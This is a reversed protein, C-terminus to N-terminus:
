GPGYDSVGTGSREVVRCARRDPKGEDCEIVFVWDNSYAGGSPEFYFLDIDQLISGSERRRTPYLTLIAISADRAQVQASTLIPLGGEDQAWKLVREPVRVSDREPYLIASFVVRRGPEFLAVSDALLSSAAIIMAMESKTPGSPSCGTAITALVVCSGLSIRFM